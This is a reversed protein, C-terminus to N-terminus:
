QSPFKLPAPTVIDLRLIDKLFRQTTQEDSISQLRTTPDRLRNEWLQQLYFRPDPIHDIHEMHDYIHQMIRTEEVSSTAISFRCALLMAIPQTIPRVYYRMPQDPIDSIPMSLVQGLQLGGNYINYHITLLVPETNIAYTPKWILQKSTHLHNDFLAKTPFTTLLPEHRGTTWPKHTLPHRSSLQALKYTIPTSNGETRVSTQQIIRNLLFPTYTSLAGDHIYTLGTQQNNFEKHIDYKLRVFQVLTNCRNVTSILHYLTPFSNNNFAFTRCQEGQDEIWLPDASYIPRFVKWNNYGPPPEDIYKLTAPALPLATLPTITQCRIVHKENIVIPTFDSYERPDVQFHPMDVVDHRSFYVPESQAQPPHPSPPPSPPTAVQEHLRPSQASSPEPRIILMHNTTTTQTDSKNILCLLRPDSSSKQLILSRMMDDIPPSTSCHLDRQIIPASKIINPILAPVTVVQRLYYWATHEPVTIQNQPKCSFWNAPELSDDVLDQICQIVCFPMPIDQHDQSISLIARFCEATYPSIRTMRVPSLQGSIARISMLIWQQYEQHTTWPQSFWYFLRQNPRDQKVTMEVKIVIPVHVTLKHLTTNKAKDTVIITNWDINFDKQRRFPSFIYSVLEKPNLCFSTLQVNVNQQGNINIEASFPTELQYLTPFESTAVVKLNAIKTEYDQQDICGATSFFIRPLPLQTNRPAKPSIRFLFPDSRMERIWYSMLPPDSTNKLMEQKFGTINFKRFAPAFEELGAHRRAMYNLLVFPAGPYWDSYVEFAAQYAQHAKVVCAITANTLHRNLFLTGGHGVPTRRAWADFDHLILKPKTGPKNEPNVRLGFEVCVTNIDTLQKGVVPSSSPTLQPNTLQLQQPINQPTETITQPVNPPIPTTQQQLNNSSSTNCQLIFSQSVIDVTIAPQEMADETITPQEDQYDQTEYDPTFTDEINPPWSDPQPNTPEVCIRKTPPQEPEDSSHGGPKGLLSM